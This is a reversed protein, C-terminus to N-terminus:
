VTNATVRHQRTFTHLNRTVDAPLQLHQEAYLQEATSIQSSSSSALLTPRDLGQLTQRWFQESRTSDQQQLWAIYDRYPLAPEVLNQQGQSFAQYTRYVEQLLPSMCWSYM